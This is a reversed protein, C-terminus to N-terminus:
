IFHVYKRVIATAETDNSCAKVEAAMNKADDEQGMNMLSNYAMSVMTLVRDSINAGDTTLESRMTNRYSQPCVEVDKLVPCYRITKEESNPYFVGRVHRLVYDVEEDSLSALSSGNRSCVFIPGYYALNNASTTASGLLLDRFRGDQDNVVSFPTESDGIYRTNIDITQCRLMKYHEDLTDVVTKREAIGREPDILVGTVSAVTDKEAEPCDVEVIFFLDDEFCLTWSGDLTYEADTCSVQAGNRFLVAECWLDADEASNSCVKIDVEYGNHFPVTWREVISYVEINEKEYDVKDAEMLANYRDITARPLILQKRTEVKPLIETIAQQRAACFSVDEEDILERMRFAIPTYYSRLADWNDFGYHFFVEHLAMGDFFSEVDLIDHELQFKAHACRLEEPTLEFAMEQGNVTRKIKM